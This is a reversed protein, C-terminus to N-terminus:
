KKRTVLIKSIVRHILIGDIGANRMRRYFEMKETETPIRGQNLDDGFLAGWTNIIKEEDTEEEPEGVIIPRGFTDRRINEMLEGFEEKNVEEVGGINYGSQGKISALTSDAIYSAEGESTAQIVLDVESRVKFYKQNETNEVILSFKDM